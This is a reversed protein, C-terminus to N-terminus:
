RGKLCSISGVSNAEYLFKGSIIKHSAYEPMLVYCIVEDSPDFMKYIAVDKQGSDFKAVYRMQKMQKLDKKDNDIQAFTTFSLVALFLAIFRKKM